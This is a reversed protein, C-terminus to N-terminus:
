LAVIDFAYDFDILDHDEKNEAWAKEKHSIESIEKSSYNRFKKYVRELVEVQEETLSSEDCSIGSTLKQGENGNDFSVIKLEIDPIMGYVINWSVPVPGYQIAKYSLGTIAQGYDRYSIFDSFFLLKNMKTIFIEGMREVFFLMVNKLRSTSQLAYGNTKDRGLKQFILSKICSEMSSDEVKEIKDAIMKKDDSTIEESEDMYSKFVSPSQIAKLTKGNAISPMEGNEYLRYTNEGFGLIRSMKSASFGYKIRTAKIEDAFPIGYKARYQNQVQSMNAADLQTTTFTEETDVCRYYRHKYEFNEKRFTAKRLEYCIKAEGNTFPSRM